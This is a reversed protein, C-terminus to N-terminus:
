SLIHSAVWALATVMIMAPLIFWIGGVVLGRLGARLYGIHMTMETSNSGPILNTAGILDLFQENTLWKRRVVGEDHM